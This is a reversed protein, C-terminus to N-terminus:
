EHANPDENEGVVGSGVLREDMDSVRRDARFRSETRSQYHNALRRMDDLHCEACEGDLVDTFMDECIACKGMQYGPTTQTTTM